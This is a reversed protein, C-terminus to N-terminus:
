PSGNQIIKETKTKETEYTQILKPMDGLIKFQNEGVRALAERNYHQWEDAPVIRLFGPEVEGVPRDKFHELGEMIKEQLHKTREWAANIEKESLGYGRLTTQLVSQNIALINQATNADLVGFQEPKIWTNGVRGKTIVPTTGFSLDNDIGTIGILKQKGNVTGFQYFMNGEHRDINGCIYDLAQMAAIDAFVEPNDYVDGDYERMPDGEPLHYADKGVANEMFTGAVAKGNQMMIMPEAKALLNPKGILNTMASMASNRKDINADIDTCLNSKGEVYLMFKKQQKSMEDIFEMMMKPYQPDVKYKDSVEVPVELFKLFDRWTDHAVKKAQEPNAKITEEKMTTRIVDEAQMLVVGGFTDRDCKEMCDFIESMQPYKQRFATLIQDRNVLPDAFANQTFFGKKVTNNNGEIQLPIRSSMQNGTTSIPQDGIDVTIARGHELIEPLSMNKDQTAVDLAAEDRSLLVSMEDVLVHVGKLENEPVALMRNCNKIVEKYANRIKVIDEKKLAPMKGEKNKWYYEETTEALQNLSELLKGYKQVSEQKSVADGILMIYKQLHNRVNTTKDPM